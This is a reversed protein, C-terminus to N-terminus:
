SGLNYLLVSKEKKKKKRWPVRLPDGGRFHLESPKGRGGTKTASPAALWPVGGAQLRLNQTRRRFNPTDRPGHWCIAAQSEPASPVATQIPEWWKVGGFWGLTILNLDM